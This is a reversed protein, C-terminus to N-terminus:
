ENNDMAIDQKCINIVEPLRDDGYYYEELLPIIKYELVFDLDDDNQIKMFYSHGIVYDEGLDQTIRKNLKKFIRQAKPYIVLDENPKMKLFTFRRRLAIDILAISKDTSNMTGIIYLNSPIKFPMKSYPLTVELTDRKDEEILTILEGFIKSINGRNIEDIVLYYNQVEEAEVIEVDVHTFKKLKEYLYFYYTAHQNALGSIGETKKVDQRNDANVIFIKKLDEFKMRLKYAWADGTYRFADKEIGIIYATENIDYKGSTDLSEQVTDKFNELKQEFQKEKSLITTDKKSNDLNRQANDCVVKFIGDQLKIDGNKNPRFGEIFDEYGFSQHFTVFNVREKIDSIDISKDHTNIKITEFIERDSKGDEILRILKNTNHTKGVGPSGYLIINKIVNTTTGSLEYTTEYIPSTSDGVIFNISQNDYKGLLLNKEKLYKLFKKGHVQSLIEGNLLRSGGFESCFRYVKNNILYEQKWYRSRGTPINELRSLFPYSLGFINNQLFNIEEINKNCYEVLNPIHEKVFEGVKIDIMGNNELQINELEDIYKPLINLFKVMSRVQWEIYDDWKSEDKINVKQKAYLRSVSKKPTEIRPQWIINDLELENEIQSKKMMLQNFYSDVYGKKHIYLEVILGEFSEGFARSQKSAIVYNFRVGKYSFADAYYNNDRHTFKHQRPFKNSIINSKEILRKFYRKYDM